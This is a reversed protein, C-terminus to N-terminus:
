DTSRRDGAFLKWYGIGAIVCLLMDLPYRFRSEPFTLAHVGTLFIGFCVVGLVFPEKKLLWYMHLYLPRASISSESTRAVFFAVVGGFLFLSEIGFALMLFINRYRIDEIILQGSAGRSVRASAMPLPVPSLFLLSKEVMRRFTVLPFKLIFGKGREALVEDTRSSSLDSLEDESKLYEEYDDIEVVPFLEDFHPNNGKYLNMGSTTSSSVTVAGTLHYLKIQWPLVTMLFVLLGTAVHLVAKPLSSAKMGCQAFPAIVLLPVLLLGTPRTLHALGAVLGLGVYRILESHFRGYYVIPFLLVEFLFLATERESILELQLVFHSLYLAVAFLGALERGSVRTALAFLLVSCLFGLLVQFLVVAAQGLGSSYIVSLVIPYLPPRYGDQFPIGHLLGRAVVSYSPSGPLPAIQGCKLYATVVLAFSTALALALALFRSRREWQDLVSKLM